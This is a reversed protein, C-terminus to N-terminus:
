AMSSVVAFSVLTVQPNSVRPYLRVEKKSPSRFGEGDGVLFGYETVKKAGKHSEWPKAAYVRELWRTFFIRDCPRVKVNVEGKKSNMSIVPLTLDHIMLEM